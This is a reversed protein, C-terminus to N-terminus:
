GLFAETAAVFEEPKEAHLWHGAGSIAKHQAKPFHKLVAGRHAERVYDSKAGTLFLTERDFSADTQPFSMIHPMQDLLAELNLLWRAQGEEFILSQLLFLRTAQDPISPKLARDAESRRSVTSLDLALMARVLDAQSHGYAVPAIDAVILKRVLSPKTLALLMSTKGGMSHGLVDAIGGEAGIVQALDEAMEPYSHASSRFSAGHNRMDVVIVHRKEALKKAVGGWNRASGFLGHVILLPVDGQGYDVQELLKM